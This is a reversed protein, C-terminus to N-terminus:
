EARLDGVNPPRFTLANVLGFLERKDTESLSPQNDGSNIIGDPGFPYQFAFQADTESLSELPRGSQRLWDYWFLILEPRHFSPIIIQTPDKAVRAMMLNQFDVADWSEDGGGGFVKTTLSAIELPTPTPNPTFSPIQLIKAYNPLLAIPYGGSGAPQGNHTASLPNLLQLNATTTSADVLGAGVGNFPGGNILFEDNVAFDTIKGEIPAVYLAVEDDGYGADSPDDVTGNGDDDNGAQGWSGDAGPRANYDLIRASKGALKGTLITLVRGDYYDEIPKLRPQGPGPNPNFKLQWVSGGTPPFQPPVVLQGSTLWGHVSDNGYLDYLLSHPALNSTVLDAGNRVVAGSFLGGTLLQDLSSETLQSGVKPDNAVDIIREIKSLAVTGRRYQGTVAVFSIGALVFLVLLSLVVLLLVGRRPKRNLPSM